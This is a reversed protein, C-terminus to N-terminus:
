ESRGNLWKDIREEAKRAQDNLGMESLATPGTPIDGNKDPERVRGCLCCVFFEGTIKNTFGVKIPDAEKCVCAGGAIIRGNPMAEIEAQREKLPKFADSWSLKGGSRRKLERELNLDVIQLGDGACDKPRVACGCRGCLTYALDCKLKDCICFTDGVDYRKGHKDGCDCWGRVGVQSTDNTSAQGDVVSGIALKDNSDKQRSMDSSVIQQSDKKPPVIDESDNSICSLGMDKWMDSLTTPMEAVQQPTM